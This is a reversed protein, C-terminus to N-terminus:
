AQRRREAVAITMVTAVFVVLAAVTLVGGLQWAATSGLADGLWLRILLGVQLLGLPLYMAPRYPLQVRAVVPLIVPAHALVMSMTFGLFVAHAAADYAPGGGAPDGLLWVGAAVALWAQGALMCVAMFRTAGATRVLRRAVDHRVLWGALGAVALGLLPGAVPWLLTALVTTALAASLWVLLRGASPPMELRALELREGSITLVLFGALWPVVAETAVGGLWGVAAGVALVAGLTQVLVADDRQRLWLRHYVAVLAVTGVVLLGAGLPETRASLHLLAGVGLAAPALYGPGRRLAAARELAILAGVFGLTMLVGHAPGTRSPAPSWVGLLSLGGALGALLCAGAPLALLTRGAVRPRRTSPSTPEAAPLLTATM